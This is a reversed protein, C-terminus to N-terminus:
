LYLFFLHKVINLVALIASFVIIFLEPNVM